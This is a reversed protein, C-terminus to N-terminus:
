YRAALGSVAMFQDSPYTFHQPSYGEFFLRVVHSAKGDSILAGYGLMGPCSNSSLLSILAGTIGGMKM